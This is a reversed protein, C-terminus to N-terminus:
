SSLPPVVILVPDTTAILLTTVAVDNLVFKSLLTTKLTNLVDLVSVVIVDVM